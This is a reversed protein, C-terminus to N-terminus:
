KKLLKKRISLWTGNGPDEGQNLYFDMNEKEWPKKALGEMAFSDDDPGASDRGPLALQWLRLTKDPKYEIWTRSRKEDRFPM